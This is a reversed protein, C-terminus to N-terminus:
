VAIINGEKDEMLGIKEHYIGRSNNNMVALKIDLKEESILWALYNLREEEIINEPEKINKLLAREIVDERSKYGKTIAEVDEEELLPSAILRMKGGQNILGGLGQAALILSGSTFYGVARSYIMTKSLVPIYFDNIINGTENDSRYQYSLDLNQFSL